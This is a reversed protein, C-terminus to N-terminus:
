ASTNQGAAAGTGRSTSRTEPGSPPADSQPWRPHTHDEAGAAAWLVAAGGRAPGSCRREAERPGEGGGGRRQAGGGGPSAPARGRAVTAHGQAKAKERGGNGTKRSSIARGGAGGRRRGRGGGPPTTRGGGPAHARLSRESAATPAATAAARSAHLPHSPPSSPPRARSPPPSPPAGTPPGPAPPPKISAHLSASPFPLQPRMWHIRVAISSHPAYACM